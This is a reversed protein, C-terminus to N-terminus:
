RTRVRLSSSACAAMLAGPLAGFLDDSAQRYDAQDDLWAVESSDGGSLLQRRTLAILAVQVFDILHM